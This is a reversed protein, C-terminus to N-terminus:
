LQSEHQIVEVLSPGAIELCKIGETGVRTRQLSIIQLQELSKISCAGVDTILCGDLKLLKLHKLGDLLTLDCDSVGTDSLDLGKLHKLESLAVISKKGLQTGALEIHELTHNRRLFDAVENDELSLDCLALYRLDTIDALYRFGIGSVKTRSLDLSQLRPLSGVHQMGQDTVDSDRLNLSVLSQYDRIPALLQDTADCGKLSIGKICRVFRGFFSNGFLPETSVIAGGHREVLQRLDRESHWATTVRSLLLLIPVGIAVIAILYVRPRHAKVFM